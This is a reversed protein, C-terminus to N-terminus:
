GEVTVIFSFFDELQRWNVYMCLCRGVGCICVRSATENWKYERRTWSKWYFFTKRSNGIERCLSGSKYTTPRFIVCFINKSISCFHLSPLKPVFNNWAKLFYLRKFLKTTTQHFEVKKKLHLTYGNWFKNTLSAGPRTVLSNVDRSSRLCWAFTWGVRYFSWANVKETLTLEYWQAM